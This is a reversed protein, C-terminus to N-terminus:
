REIYVKYKNNEKEFFLSDATVRILKLGDISGNLRMVHQVGNIKVMYSIIGGNKEKVYGAYQLLINEVNRIVEKQQTSTSKTSSQKQRQKKVHKKLFPDAYNLYLTDNQNTSMNKQPQQTRISGINDEAPFFIKKIIFGWIIIVLVTLVYVTYKSKM